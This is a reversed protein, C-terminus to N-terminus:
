LLRAALEKVDSKRGERVTNIEQCKGREKRAMVYEFESFIINRMNLDDYNFYRVLIKNRCEDTAVRKVNTQRPM